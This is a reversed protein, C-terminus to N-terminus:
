QDMLMDYMGQVNLPRWNAYNIWDSYPEMLISAQMDELSDGAAIGASVSDRLEELYHRYSAIDSKSGYIGHGSAAVDIDLMEVLRISNLLADLGGGAITQFPVRGLSIYDVVFVTKEAPFYVATMDDTHDMSGVHILDVSKGGLTLTMRDKFVIDPARVDNLAGRTAEAGNIMGDGDVDYLRLNAAFNGSAESAEIQGNGNADLAAANGPLPTDAPPLVLNGPFNEHGVFQATDNFVAGGSAHDWHHHSYVVYRVPVGFRSDIEAKLWESFAANVTDALIVGDDTVLFVTHHNNNTARYLDEGIEVIARTPAQQAIASWSLSLLVSAALSTLVVRINNM